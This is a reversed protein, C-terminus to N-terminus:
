GAAVRLQAAHPRLAEYLARYLERRPQHMAHHEPRSRYRMTVRVRDAAERLSGHLGIAQGALMAAGLCPADEVLAHEITRGLIDAKMQLWRPSRAGGGVARLSGPGVGAADLADIGIAQEYTVGELLARLIDGRRTEFRLGLLAASAGEDGLVSGTGAFHPLLIPGGPRSDEVEELLAAVDEDAAADGGGTATVSRYWHLVRGGSQSGALAVFGEPAVHPYCPIGRAPLAPAFDRLAAVIVETTGIAYLASGPDLVGAGLAGMPQDHGGLVVAVGAPLGLPAAIDPAITGVVTGAPLIPALRHPEIGAAELAEPWWAGRAIDYAMTRAAMTRDIAPALGLRLLAFEGFCLYKWTAAHLAPEHERWWMLKPLSPLSSVPQGTTHRITTEGLREALRHVAAEGRRDLSIPAPALCRGDRDVPVIAEGQVSLCLARIARAFCRATVDRLCSAAAQWVADADLEFRGPAPNRVAYARRASALANGEPDFAVLKAASTGLDLGLLVPDRM